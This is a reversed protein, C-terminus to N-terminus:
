RYTATSKRIKFDTFGQSLLAMSVEAGNNPSRPGLIVERVLKPGLGDLPLDVYAVIGGNRTRYCIQQKTSSFRDESSGESDSLSWRGDDMQEVTTARIFRVEKEEAFAPSKILCNDFAVVFLFERFKAKLDLKNGASKWFTHAVSLLERFYKVQEKEDYIVLGCRVALRKLLASDLGLSVGAGNDAYARWQSLLDGDRSFCSILPLSHLQLSSVIEDVEDLFKRDYDGLDINVADIFKDYAWHMEGFDNMTNIDSFRLRRNQIIALFTDTSCYHYVIPSAREDLFGFSALENLPLSDTV